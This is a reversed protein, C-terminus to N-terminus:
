YESNKIIKELLAVPFIPSKEALAQQFFVTAPTLAPLTNVEIIILEGLGTHMFADIRAYGRINLRTAVALARAQIKKLVKKTIINEPPPTINVGTGGQFKEEVSLVEGEAVTISPQFARRSTNDALIGITTEVWGTRRTYRIKNARFRLTDTEIFKQFLLTHVKLTPMEVIGFQNKFTGAPIQRASKELMKVYREVDRSTYLRVVGSSCGDAVPKVIIAHGIERRLGRWFKAYDRDHFGQFYEVLVKREPIASVGSIKLGNVARATQHKDICLASVKSDSGNFRKNNNELMKQITGNEGIGGHLGLFVFPAEKIFQRLPIQRPLFVEETYDGKRFALRLKVKEILFHLRNEDAAATKCSAVIEEVTHNLTLFYPLLWVQNNFDLLFPQPDYIASNRLKLWINTGSMLSVQRESTAGGFLVAVPRRNRKHNKMPKPFAIGQRDAAARVIYRLADHHSMGLRSSQQFLFSNQEMGSVPNFDSFWIKGDPFIWGDFRAFDRMKFLTFLQEAQVQIREIDANSFRPPCHYTVHRTPLYKKRYDFIQNESYDTEIETPLICVPMQFRNQFIIATFEKGEAFPELVVRTDMRKSFLFKIRDLAEAPTQVSFVGISSGGNAPKVIARKIKNERFFKHVIEKHDHHYIKLVAAPPAFFGRARIFKNARYKDFVIRCAAAGTGVYPINNKELFRQIGGDEGYAGHMVPFVLNTKGLSRVFEKKNLPKTTDQLKFDFDSPTNSYLQAKSIAYPRRKYDLYFPVIEIDGGDLHDLVSRASNLSIGRERSPGGCILGLKFSKQMYDFLIEEKSYLM